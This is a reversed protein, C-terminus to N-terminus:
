VLSSDVDTGCGDGAKERGLDCHRRRMDGSSM